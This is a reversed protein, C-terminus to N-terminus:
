EKIKKFGFYCQIPKNIKIGNEIITIKKNRYWSKNNNDIGYENKLIPNISVATNISLGIDEAWKSLETAKFYDNKFDNTIVFDREFAQKFEEIKTNEVCSIDETFLNMDVEQCVNMIINKIIHIDGTFYEKGIDPRHTIMPHEMLLKLAKKEALHCNNVSNIIKTESGKPYQSIRVNPNKTKGVKYTPEDMKAHERLQLGYLYEDM